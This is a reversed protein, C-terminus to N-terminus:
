SDAGSKRAALEAATQLLKRFRVRRRRQQRQDRAIKQFEDITFAPYEEIVMYLRPPGPMVWEIERPPEPIQMSGLAVYKDGDWAEAFGDRNIFWTM